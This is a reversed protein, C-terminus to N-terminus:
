RVLVGHYGHRLEYVKGTLASIELIEVMGSEKGNRNKKSTLKNVITYLYEKRKDDFSLTPLERGYKTQTLHKIGIEIAQQVTIFDCDRKEWVFKPIFDLEIPEYLKQQKSIKVWVGSRVGEVKPYDFHWFVLIGIWNKRIRHNKKLLKSKKYGLRNAPLLYYSINETPKFYTFLDKGVSEILYKESLDLIDETKLRQAHIEITFLFIVIFISHIKNM